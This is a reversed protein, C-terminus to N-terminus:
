PCISKSLRTSPSKFISINTRPCPLEARVVARICDNPRRLVGFGLVPTYLHMCSSLRGRQIPYELVSSVRYDRLFRM